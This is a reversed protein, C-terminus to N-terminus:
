RGKRYNKTSPTLYLGLGKRYPRLFMGSGRKGGLAIAEMHRNHREAEALQKRASSASNVAKAIGAAGGALGGAASLGAFLPILFPLIGGTKPIPIIRASMRKGRIGGNKRYVKRAAKLATKIAKKPDKTKTKKLAARASTVAARFVNKKVGMGFKRKAKMANTVTWAAVREGFSADKSKVRKWAQEALVRDAEHRKALETYRSYAIDHQKCAADLPNKGRDGRALRERLRTGPGCFQYGPIHLEFPLSNIASNVIGHGHVLM